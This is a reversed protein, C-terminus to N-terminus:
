GRAVGLTLCLRLVWTHLLEDEGLMGLERLKVVLEVVNRESLRAQLSAACDAPGTRRCPAAAPRCTTCHFCRRHAAHWLQM